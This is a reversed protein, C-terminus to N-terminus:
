EQAGKLAAEAIEADSPGEGIKELLEEVWADAEDCKRALDGMDSVYFLAELKRLAGEPFEYHVYRTQFNYRMPSHVIRLLEVLPRLVMSQYYGMAEISNGRNLEKRVFPKFMDYIERHRKVRARITAAHAAPDVHDFALSGEKDFHVVPRGHIEPQLFRDKDNGKQMAVFDLLLFESADRLKYFAQSHGHWTPEPFRFSVEIPSLSELARKVDEFVDDVRGDECLVQLDIDSWEDVRGFAAAGGEWMALVYDAPELTRRLTETVDTRRVRPEGM